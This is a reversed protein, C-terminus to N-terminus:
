ALPTRTREGADLRTAESRGREDPSAARVSSGRTSARGYQPAPSGRLPRFHVRRVVALIASWSRVSPMPDARLGDGPQELRHAIRQADVVLPAGAGRPQRRRRKGPSEDISVPM